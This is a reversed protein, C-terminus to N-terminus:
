AADERDFARGRPHNVGIGALLGSIADGFRLSLIPKGDVTSQRGRMSASMRCGLAFAQRDRNTDNM